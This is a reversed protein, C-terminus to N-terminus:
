AHLLLKNKIMQITDDSLQLSQFYNEFSRYAECIYDYAAAISEPKSDLLEEPLEVPLNVVRQNPNAQNYIETVMYNAIIDSRDVGALGLLLMALVGTRDKGAACHFLVGGPQEAIFELITRLNEKEESLIDIYIKSLIDGEDVTFLKKLGTVDFSSRDVPLLSVHLYSINDVQAFRNPTLECEYDSRLDIIATMGYDTLCTMDDDSIESIDDSRLFQKYSTVKGNEGVYGGLERVNYATELKLRRVGMGNM